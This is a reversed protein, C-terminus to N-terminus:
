LGALGISKNFHKEFEKETLHKKKSDSGDTQSKKKSPDVKDKLLGLKFEQLKDISKKPFRKLLEEPPLNEMLSSLNNWYRKEIVQMAQDPTLHKGFRQYAASMMLMMENATEPTQPIHPYKKMAEVIEGSVRQKMAERKQKEAQTREAEERQKAEAEYKDALRAREALKIQEESWGEYKKEEAMAERIEELALEKFNRGIAPDAFIEKVESLKGSKLKNILESTFKKAQSGEKIVQDAYFAKQLAAKLQDKGSFKVKQKQGKVDLEFEFPDEPIPDSKVAGEALAAAGQQGAETPAPIKTPEQAVPAINEPM